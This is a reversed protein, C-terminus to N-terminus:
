VMAHIEVPRRRKCKPCFFSARTCGSKIPMRNQSTAEYGCKICKMRYRVFEGDQSIIIAGKAGTVRGKKTPIPQRQGAVSAPKPAVPVAAPAEAPAPITLLVLDEPQMGPISEVPTGQADSPTLASASLAEPPLIPPSPTPAPQPSSAPRSAAEVNTAAPRVKTQADPFLYNVTAAFVGKTMGEKWVTDTPQLRRTAAFEKLQMASFPGFQEQGRAFYFQDAM